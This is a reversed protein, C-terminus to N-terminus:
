KSNRRNNLQTKRDAWRVNDPCYGRDNDIRDLSHGEPREGLVTDCFELLTKSDHWPEFVKIGRGPAAECFDVVAKPTRHASLVRAEFPIEFERLTKLCAELRPFDSDSGMLLAVSM